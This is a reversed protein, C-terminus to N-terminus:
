VMEPNDPTINLDYISVGLLKSGEITSSEFHGTIYLYGYEDIFCNHVSPFDGVLVPNHPNSIDFIQSSNIHESSSGQAVYLFHKWIKVDIGHYPITSTVIPLSANSVDVISIIAELGISGIIAYKEEGVVNGCIDTNFLSPLNIHSIKNFIQPPVIDKVITDEDVTSDVINYDDETSCSLSLLSIICFLFFRAKFTRIKNIM